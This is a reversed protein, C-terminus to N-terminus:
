SFGTDPLGRSMSSVCACPIVISWNASRNRHCFAFSIRRLLRSGWHRRGLCTWCLFLHPIQFRKNNKPIGLLALFFFFSCRVAPFPSRVSAIATAFGPMPRGVAVYTFFSCMIPMASAGNVCSAPDLGIFSSQLSSCWSDNAVWTSSNKSCPQIPRSVTKLQVETKPACMKNHTM